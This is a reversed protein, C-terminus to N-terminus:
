KNRDEGRWVNWQQQQERTLQPKVSNNVMEDAADLCQKWDDGRIKEYIVKTLQEKAAKRLIDNQVTEDEELIIKEYVISRDCCDSCGKCCNNCCKECCKRWGCSLLSAVLVIALLGVLGFLQFYLM